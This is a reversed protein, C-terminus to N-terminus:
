AGGISLPKGNSKAMAQLQELTYSGLKHDQDLYINYVGGGGVNSNRLARTMATEVGSSVSAVIQDNNMVATQSGINGVLEAGNERALFYQGTPPFGGQAYAASAKFTYKDGVANGWFDKLTLKLSGNNISNKIGKVIGKGFTEGATKGNTETFATTFFSSISKASNKLDEGFDKMTSGLGNDKIRKANDVITSIATTVNNVGDLSIKAVSSAYSSFSSGFSKLNEGFKAIGNDGAFFAAVGGENPIKKAFEIIYLMAEKINKSDDVVGTGVKSVYGAYSAFHKGFDPLQKAFDDLDNEGAFFGAVGGSNPIEKTFAIIYSMADAIIKSKGITEKDVGKINESFINFYPAFSALQKGFTVLSNEGSIWSTLNELLTTATIALLANALASIANFTEAGYKGVSDFFPQANTMFASLSKGLNELSKHFGESVKEIFGGVLTGVIKGIGNFIECLLDVGGNVFETIGPIKALGGFAAIILTTAGIVAALVGIGPLIIESLLGLGAMVASIGAIPLIIKGIGDFVIVLTNVGKQMFETFGPIASLAAYAAVIATCAGIILAVDAIGKLVTKISPVSFLSAKDGVVGAVDGADSVAKASKGIGFLKTFLPLKLIGIAKLVRFIIQIGKFIAGGAALAGLITGGTIKEFTFYTKKAEEDVHKQFGLWEMITDRIKTAKMEVDEITSFYKKYADNFADMLKPDVGTGGVGGGANAATPTTINNLKDFGRLGRKLKEVKKTASDVGVDFDYVDDAMTEFYDYDGKDYGLLRAIIAIIETLVMVIANLYPLIKALIPLFVNGLERTLRNFQENLIRMQNAPSELTRGWDNNAKSLQETLSIVILLRKEAYSLNAVEKEIGLNGLTQQLTAQTIDAGLRRAPKTQGALASQLIAPVQDVDLNYLSSIDISMQTLLESLRDGVDASLGMANALQKFLGVTRTLWAEDLGYMESLKNIFREAQQYNGDFAVQFLNFSELFESSKQTVKILGSYLKALSGTFKKLASYNFAVNTNKAMEQAEDSVNNMLNKSEAIQKMKGEDISALVSRIKELQKAYEKVGKENTITNKFKISVETENNM